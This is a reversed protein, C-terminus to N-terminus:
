SMPLLRLMGTARAVSYSAAVEIAGATLSTLRVCVCAVEGWGRTCIIAKLNYLLSSLYLRRHAYPVSIRLCNCVGVGGFGVWGWVV